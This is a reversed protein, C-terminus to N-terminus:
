KLEGLLMYQMDPKPDPEAEVSELQKYTKYTMSLKLREPPAANRNSRRLSPENEVLEENSKHKPPSAAEIPDKTEIHRKMPM